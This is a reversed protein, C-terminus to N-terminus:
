ENRLQIYYLRMRPIYIVHIESLSATSHMSTKSAGDNVFGYACRSLLVNLILRLYKLEVHIEKYIWRQCWVRDMHMRDVSLHVTPSRLGMAPILNLAVTRLALRLTMLLQTSPQEATRTAIFTLLHRKPLQLSRLMGLAEVPVTLTLAFIM